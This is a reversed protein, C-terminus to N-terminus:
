LQVRIAAALKIFGNQLDKRSNTRSQVLPIGASTTAQKALDSTRHGCDLVNLVGACRGGTIPAWVEDRSPAKDRSARVWHISSKESLGFSELVNEIHAPPRGGVVVIRKDALVERAGEIQKVLADAAVKEQASPEVLSFIRAFVDGDAFVGGTDANFHEQQLGRLATRLKLRIDGIAYDDHLDSVREIVDLIMLREDQSYNGSIGKSGLWVLLKTMSDFLLQSAKADQLAALVVFVDEKRGAILTQRVVENTTQSDEGILKAVRQSSCAEVPRVVGGELAARVFDGSWKGSLNTGCEIIRIREHVSSEKTVSKLARIGVRYALASPAYDVMHEFLVLLAKCSRCSAIAKELKMEFARDTWLGEDSCVKRMVQQNVSHESVLSKVILDEAMEQSISGGGLVVSEIAVPDHLQLLFEDRIASAVAETTIGQQILVNLTTIRQTFDPISNLVNRIATSPTFAEPQAQPAHPELEDVVAASLTEPVLSDSSAYDSQEIILRESITGLAGAVWKSVRLPDANAYHSSFPAWRVYRQEHDNQIRFLTTDLKPLRLIAAEDDSAPNGPSLRVILHWREGIDLREEIEGSALRISFRCDTGDLVYGAGVARFPWGAKQLETVITQSAANV